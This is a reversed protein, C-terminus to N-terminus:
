PSLRAISWDQKNADPLYIFRDHLRNPRGQWFEFKSPVLRYGGWHEPHPIPHDAYLAKNSAFTEELVQRSAVEQSQISSLAAIQSDRPRSAFYAQSEELSVKDLIGEIRVQRELEPWFFLLSAKQNGIIEHGKASDYHTYFVFGRTDAEKLLVIRNHPQGSPDVTAVSMATADKNPSALADDMWSTFQVFPSTKLQTKSLGPADYDRREQQYDRNPMIHYSESNITEDM